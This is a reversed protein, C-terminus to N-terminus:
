LKEEYDIVALEGASFHATQNSDATEAGDDELTTRKVFM